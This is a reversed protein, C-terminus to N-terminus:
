GSRGIYLVARSDDWELFSSSPVCGNLPGSFSAMPAVWTLDGAEGRQAGMGTSDQEKPILVSDQEGTYGLVEVDSASCRGINM